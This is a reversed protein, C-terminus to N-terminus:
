LVVSLVTTFIIPLREKFKYNTSESYNSIAGTGSDILQESIVKFIPDRRDFTNAFKILDLVFKYLRKKFENKFKERDNKM